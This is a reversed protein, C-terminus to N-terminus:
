ARWRCVAIQVPLRITTQPPLPMSPSLSLVPPRYSGTPSVQVGIDVPAPGSALELWVATHVPVTITIQTPFVPLRYSGRASVQVGVVVTFAGVARYSCVATQVPLTITTQPPLNPPYGLRPPRYSGMASM